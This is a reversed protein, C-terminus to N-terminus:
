RAMGVPIKELECVIEMLDTVGRLMRRLSLQM